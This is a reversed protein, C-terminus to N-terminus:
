DIHDVELPVKGSYPNIEGWGCQSCKYNNKILLYKRVRNIIKYGGKGISGSVEGDIWKKIYADFEIEQRYKAICSMSCFSVNRGYLSKGCLKCKGLSKANRKPFLKNNYKASCSCSCFKPNKTEINCQLCTNM